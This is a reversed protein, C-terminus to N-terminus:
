TTLKTRLLDLDAAAGEVDAVAFGKALEPSHAALLERVRDAYIAHGDRIFVGDAEEFQRNWAIAEDRSLTAPLDLQVGSHDVIVPYGGGIGHPGPVHSRTAGEGALARLVPVANAASIVNLERYPLRIDRTFDDIGSMEADGIWARVPAGAREMGPKRWEVIHRHHALVRFDRRQEFPIRGGIVSSFIGINGVGTTIPLGAQALVQNVGDPYCTNVFMTGDGIEKLATATRFALLSNFALTLGFGAKAVLRSWESDAIDVKWPSQASASQVVIRPNVRRIGEALAASSASDLEISSFTAPSGFNVSRARCAEVLWNMREVNRGGIVVSIGTRATAALDALMVEAYYGTGIILLDCSKTNQNTM